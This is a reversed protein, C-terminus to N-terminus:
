TKEQAKGTMPVFLVPAIVRQEVTGDQCKSLLLLEQHREGVPLVMRGGTELQDVLPQPVHIPAATVIIADFPAEDPWGQYGDGCRTIINTYGLQVFREKTSEALNSLIEITYVKEALKALIITQYGSGTGIELVKETGTLKLLETMLAVIYPQSITQDDGIPLPNDSYAETKWRDPVFEHRPVSRIVELVREDKVGRGRVQEAVMQHRAELFPDDDIM